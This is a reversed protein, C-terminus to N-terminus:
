TLFGDDNINFDNMRQTFNTNSGDNEVIPPPPIINDDDLDDVDDVRANSLNILDDVEDELSKTSELPEVVVAKEKTKSPFLAKAKALVKTAHISARRLASVKPKSSDDDGFIILNDLRTEVERDIIMQIDAFFTDRVANNGIHIVDFIIITLRHIYAPHLLLM